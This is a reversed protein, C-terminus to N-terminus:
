KAPAVPVQVVVIREKEVSGFKSKLMTNVGITGVVGVACGTAAARTQKGKELWEFFHAAFGRSGHYHNVTTNNVTENKPFNLFGSATTSQDGKAAQMVSPMGSQDGMQDSQGNYVTSNNVSNLHFRNLWWQRMKSYGVVAKEKSTQVLSNNRIDDSLEKLSSYHHVGLFIITGVAPLLRMAAPQSAVTIAMRQLVLAGAAPMVARASETLLILIVFLLNLRIKM